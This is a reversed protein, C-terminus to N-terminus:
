GLYFNTIRQRAEDNWGTELTRNLDVKKLGSTRETPSATLKILNLIREFATLDRDGYVWAYSFRFVHRIGFVGDQYEHFYALLLNWLGKFEDASSGNVIGSITRWLRYQLKAGDDDKVPTNPKMMVIYSEISEIFAKEAPTGNQKLNAIRKDFSYADVVKAVDVVVPAVPAAVSEVVPTAPAVPAAPPIVPASALMPTPSTPPAVIPEVVTPTVAAPATDPSVPTNVKNAKNNPTSTIDTM